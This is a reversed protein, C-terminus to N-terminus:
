ELNPRIGWLRLCAGGHVTGGQHKPADILSRGTNWPGELELGSDSHQGAAALYCTAGVANGDAVGIRCQQENRCRRAILTELIGASVRSGHDVACHAERCLFGELLQQFSM